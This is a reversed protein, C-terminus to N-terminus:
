SFQEVDFAEFNCLKRCGNWEVHLIQYDISLFPLYRGDLGNSLNSSLNKSIKCHYIERVVCFFQITCIESFAGSKIDINFSIKAIKEGFISFM